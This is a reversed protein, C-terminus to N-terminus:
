PRLASEALKERTRVVDPRAGLAEFEALARTYCARARDAGAQSAALEGLEVLTRGTQFRAGMGDFLELAAALQTEAEPYEGALRHAVGGARHAIALYLRHDCRVATEEALPVYRNLAAADRRGVASDALLSYLDHDGVTIWGMSPRALATESHEWVLAFEGEAM